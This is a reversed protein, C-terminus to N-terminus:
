VARVIYKLQPSVNQIAAVTPLKGNPFVRALLPYKEASFDSGDCLLWGAPATASPWLLLAGAPSDERYLAQDTEAAPPNDTNYEQCWSSWVWLFSSLYYHRRYLANSDYPRFEQTCGTERNSLILLSGPSEVPYNLGSFVNGSKSQRYVGYNDGTLSNLNITGLEGYYPFATSDKLVSSCIDKTM